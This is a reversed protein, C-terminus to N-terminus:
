VSNKFFPDSHVAPGSRDLATVKRRQSPHPQALLPSLNGVFMALVHQLGLPVAQALPIRGNLEYPSTYNRSTM